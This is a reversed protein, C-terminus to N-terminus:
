LRVAQRRQLLLLFFPAGLIATLVGVPIEAPEIITRALVDALVLLAGGLLASLPLLQRYDAIGLLRIAHPVVLGVFGIIGSVSVAAATAVSVAAILIFRVRGVNVGLHQAEEDDVQMANLLRGHLLVVVVAPMAYPLLLWMKDWSALNFGGLVWSLVVRLDDESRLMMLSTVATAFASVAVGALILSVTPAERSSRGLAFSVFSATIAGVFAFVTLLSAAYYNGDIDSVIAITGGLAAGSAAGILYPDALPNRFVGQYAGGCIALVAGVVAAMLVRPLRVDVVITEQTATWDQEVPLHLEAMVIRITTEFPIDAAGQSLSFLVCGVLFALAVGMRLLFQHGIRVRGVTTTLAQETM